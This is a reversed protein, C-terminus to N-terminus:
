KKMLKWIFKWTFGFMIAIYGFLLLFAKALADNTWIPWFQLALLFIATVLIWKCAMFTKYDKKKDM